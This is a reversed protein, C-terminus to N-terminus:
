IGAIKLEINIANVLSRIWRTYNPSISPDRKQVSWNPMNQSSKKYEDSYANILVPPADRTVADTTKAPDFGKDYGMNESSVYKISYSKMDFVVDVIVVAGDRRSDLKLRINGPTGKATEDVHWHYRMAGSIIAKKVVEDTFPKSGIPFAIPGPQILTDQQANATTSFGIAAVFMMTILGKVLKM